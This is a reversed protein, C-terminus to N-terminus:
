RDAEGNCLEREQADKLLSDARSQWQMNSPRDLGCACRPIIHDVVHGPCRGTTMGTAPCPNARKFKTVQWSSRKIRGDATRDPTCVGTVPDIEGAFAPLQLCAAMMAAVIFRMM